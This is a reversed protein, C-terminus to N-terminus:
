AVAKKREGGIFDRTFQDLAEWDTYEYDRSTDTDLGERSAIRRMVWRLLFGYKTYTIAGAVLEVRDPIWGTKELFTDAYRQAHDRGGFRAMTGSVSVLASSRSAMASLHERVFRAIKRDHRDFHISGAVIFVDALAVDNENIANVGELTPTVGDITAAVDRIREAIRATQGHRSNYVILVRTNKM